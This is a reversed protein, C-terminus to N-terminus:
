MMKLIEMQSWDEVIESTTRKKGKKSVLKLKIENVSCKWEEAFHKKLEEEAEKVTIFDSLTIGITVCLELGEMIKRTCKYTRKRM